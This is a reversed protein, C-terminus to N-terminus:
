YSVPFLAKKNILYIRTFQTIAAQKLRDCFFLKSKRSSLLMFFYATQQGIKHPIHKRSRILLVSILILKCNKQLHKAISILGVPRLFQKTKM